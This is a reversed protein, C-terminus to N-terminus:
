NETCRFLVKRPLGDGDSTNWNYNLADRYEELRFEKTYGMNLNGNIVDQIIEDVMKKRSDDNAQHEVIYRSQWYGRLRIDRFILLGTPITLPMKSMGGYTVM